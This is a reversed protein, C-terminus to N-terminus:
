KDKDDCMRQSKKVLVPSLSVLFIKGNARKDLVPSLSVKHLCPSVQVKASFKLHYKLYFRTKINTYGNM